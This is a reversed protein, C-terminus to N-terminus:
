GRMGRGLDHAHLIDLGPETLRPGDSTNEAWGLEVVSGSTSHHVGRWSRGEHVTRLARIKRRSIRSM